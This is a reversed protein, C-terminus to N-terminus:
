LNEQPEEEQVEEVPESVVFGQEFAPKEEVEIVPLEEVTQEAPPVMVFKAINPPEDLATELLRAITQPDMPVEDPIKQLLELHERYRKTIDNKFSAVEMKLRDFLVQQRDVADKTAADLSAAKTKGEAMKKDLERQLEERREDAKRQFADSLLREQATIEEISAQANKLIENSKQKADEIMQDALRQANMLVNNITDKSGKLSDVEENLQAIKAMYSQREKEFEEYDSFIKELFLDVEEAKYGSIGKSFKIAGIDSSSLM